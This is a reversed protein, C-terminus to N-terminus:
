FYNGISSPDRVVRPSSRGLHRAVGKDSGRGRMLRVSTEEEAEAEARAASRVTSATRHRLRSIRTRGM